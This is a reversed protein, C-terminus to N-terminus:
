CQFTEKIDIQKSSYWFFIFQCVDWIITELFSLHTRKDLYFTKSLLVISCFFPFFLFINGVCMNHFYAYIFTGFYIFFGEYYVYELLACSSLIYSIYVNHFTYYSYLSTIALLEFMKNRTKYPQTPLLRHFIFLTFMLYYPFSLKNWYPITLYLFSQYSM